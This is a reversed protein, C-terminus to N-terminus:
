AAQRTPTIEPRRRSAYERRHQDWLLPLEDNLQRLRRTQDPTLGQRAAQRYLMHRENALKQIQDLTEM